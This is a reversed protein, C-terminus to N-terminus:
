ASVSLSLHSSVRTGPGVTVGSVDGSESTVVGNTVTISFFQSQSVGGVILQLEVDTLEVPFDDHKIM